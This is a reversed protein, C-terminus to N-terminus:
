IRFHIRPVKGLNLASIKSFFKLNPTDMTIEQQNQHTSIKRMQRYLNMTMKSMKTKRSQKTKLQFYHLVVSLTTLNVQSSVVQNVSYHIKKTLM